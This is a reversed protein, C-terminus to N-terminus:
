NSKFQVVNLYRLERTNLWESCENRFFFKKRTTCDTLFPPNEYKQCMAESLLREMETEIDNIFKIEEPTLDINPFSTTPHWHMYPIGSYAHKNHATVSKVHKKLHSMQSTHYTCKNCWHYPIKKINASTQAMM